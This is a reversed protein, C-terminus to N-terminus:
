LSVEMGLADALFSWGDAIEDVLKHVPKGAGHGAKSDIRVLVPARGAQAAQLRAAFKFSHAPFVRDDHDATTIFTPPYETGPVINHYPSYSRLSPFMGPDEPSGYDSVWFGGVTFTHFRLMDHVGVAPLAAGFLDPRQTLCAGVLLGGNSRGGIALKPKSTLGKSLLWEAAAIFDDFVNQRNECAGAERWAQGYEGGGRICAVAVQGGMEMWMLHALRFCPSEVHGFGGYGYLYTPTEAHIRTGRKWSRFIPVRTGDKSEYFTRETIYDAPDFCLGSELLQTVTGTVPDIQLIIEPTSVDTYEVFVTRGKRNAGLRYVSGHGPLEPSPLRTGDTSVALLRAEADDLSSLLFCDGVLAVLELPHSGEALIEIWEDPEPHNIDVSVLRGMPADQTTLFYFRDGDNGLFRYVSDFTSFLETRSFSNARLDLLTVRNGPSTGQYTSVVLYRGDNSIQSAPLWQPQGTHELLATDESQPTGLRHLCLSWHTAAAKMEDESNRVAPRTYAFGSADPLWAPVPFKVQDLRDPLDKGSEVDRIRWIQWDSGSQSLGYAVLRGDPSPVFGDISLTGDDSLENPDILPHFETDSVHQWGLVPQQGGADRVTFFRRGGEEIPLGAVAYRSLETLRQRIADKGQLRALYDDTFARQAGIWERTEDSDLDEMWRYPDPVGVGHLHDIHATSRAPPYSLPRTESVTM